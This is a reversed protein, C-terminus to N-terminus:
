GAPSSPAPYVANLDWVNKWSGDTQKTWTTQSSVQETVPKHSTADTHTWAYRSTTTALDGSAAVFWKRSSEDIQANLAPDKLARENAAKIAERGHAPPMGPAYLTGDEAFVTVAADLDKRTLAAVQAVEAKQIAEIVKTRELSEPTQTCGGLLALSTASVAIVRM